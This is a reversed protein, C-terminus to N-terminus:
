KTEGLFEFNISTHCHMLSEAKCGEGNKTLCRMWFRVNECFEVNGWSWHHEKKCAPCTWIIPTTAM